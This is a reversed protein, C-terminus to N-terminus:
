IGDAVSWVAGSTREVTGRRQCDVTDWENASRNDCKAPADANGKKRINQRCCIKSEIGNVKQSNM